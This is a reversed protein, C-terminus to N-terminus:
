LSSKSFEDPFALDTSPLPSHGAVVLNDKLQDQLTDTHIQPAFDRKTKIRDDKMLSEPAWLQPIRTIGDCDHTRFRGLISITMMQHSAKVCKEPHSCLQNKVYKKKPPPLIVYVKINM